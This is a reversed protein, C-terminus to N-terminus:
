EVLWSAMTFSHLPIGAAPLIFLYKPKTTLVVLINHTFTYTNVIVIVILVVTVTIVLLLLHFLFLHQMFLLLWGAMECYNYPM